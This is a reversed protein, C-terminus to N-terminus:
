ITTMNYKTLMENLETKVLIHEKWKLILEEPVDDALDLEEWIHNVDFVNAVRQLHTLTSLNISAM